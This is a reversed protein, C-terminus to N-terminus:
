QGPQSVQTVNVARATVTGALLDLCEPARLTQKWDSQPSTFYNPNMCKCSTKLIIGKYDQLLM